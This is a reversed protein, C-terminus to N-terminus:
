QVGCFGQGQKSNDDCNEMVLDINDLIAQWEPKELGAYGRPLFLFDFVSTYGQGTKATEAKPHSLGLFDDVAENNWNGQYQISLSQTLRLGLKQFELKTTALGMICRTTGCINHNKDVLTGIWSAINFQQSEFFEKEQVVLDRVMKLRSKNIKIHGKLYLWKSGSIYNNVLEPISALDSVPFPYIDIDAAPIIVELKHENSLYLRVDEGLINLRAIHTATGTIYQDLKAAKLHEILTM